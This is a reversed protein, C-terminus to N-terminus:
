QGCPALVSVIKEPAFAQSMPRKKEPKVNLAARRV